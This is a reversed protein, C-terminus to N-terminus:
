NKSFAGLYFSLLSLYDTYEVFFEVQVLVGDIEFLLTKHCETADFIKCIFKFYISFPECEIM